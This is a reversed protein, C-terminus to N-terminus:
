IVSLAVPVTQRRLVFLVILGSMLLWVSLPLPVASTAPAFRLDMAFLGISRSPMTFALVSTSFVQGASVNFTLAGASNRSYLTKGASSVYTSLSQMLDTWRIDTLALTVTGASAVHFDTVSIASGNVLVSNHYTSTLEVIGASAPLWPVAAFLLCFGIRQWAALKKM